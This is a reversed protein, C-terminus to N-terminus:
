DGEQVRRQVETLYADMEAMSSFITERPLSNVIDIVKAIQPQLNTLFVTSGRDSLRKRSDLLLGIGTSSLFTLEGLDFVVVKPAAAIVPEVQARAADVTALDLAGGIRVVTAGPGPGPRHIVEVHAPKM